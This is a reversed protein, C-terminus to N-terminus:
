RPMLAIRSLGAGRAIDIVRAIQRFELGPEARLFIPHNLNNKYLEALRMALNAMEVPEQNIRVTRGDCVTIIIEQLAPAEDQDPRPPQPLRADLGRPRLPTIIMFIILLVLLVDILPTVNIEARRDSGPSLTM